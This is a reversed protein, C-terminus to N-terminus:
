SGVPAGFAAAARFRQFARLGFVIRLGPPHAPVETRETQVAIIGLIRISEPQNFKRRIWRDVPRTGTSANNATAFGRTVWLWSM